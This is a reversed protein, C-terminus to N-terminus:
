QCCYLKGKNTQILKLKGAPDYSATGFYVRNECHVVDKHRFDNMEYCIRGKLGKAQKLTVKGKRHDHNVICLIDPNYMWLAIPYTKDYKTVEPLRKPVVSM